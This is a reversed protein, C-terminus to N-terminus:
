VMKSCMNFSIGIWLGDRLKIVIRRYAIYASWELPWHLATLLRRPLGFPFDFAAQWPGPLRLFDEFASFSTLEQCNEVQLHHQELLCSVLTIPKRPGPASTFDLGYIRM